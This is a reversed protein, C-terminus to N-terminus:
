LQTLKSNKLLGPIGLRFEITSLQYLVFFLRPIHTFINRVGTIFEDDVRIDTVM